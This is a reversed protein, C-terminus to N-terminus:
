VTGLGHDATRFGLLKSNTCLSDTRVMDRLKSDAPLPAYLDLCVISHLEIQMLQIM